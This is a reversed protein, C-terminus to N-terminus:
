KVSAFVGDKCAKIFEAEDLKGDGNADYTKGSKKIADLFVAAGAGELIGNKNGDAEDAKTWQAKCQEDSPAAASAAPALSQSVVFVALAAYKLM